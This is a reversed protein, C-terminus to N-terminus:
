LNIYMFPPGGEGIKGGGGEWWCRGQWPAYVLTWITQIKSILFAKMKVVIYISSNKMDILKKIKLTKKCLFLEMAGINKVSAIQVYIQFSCRFGPIAYLDLASISWCELMCLYTSFIHWLLWAWNWNLNLTCSLKLRWLSNHHNPNPKIVITILLLLKSQLM